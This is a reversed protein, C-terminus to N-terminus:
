FFAGIAIMISITASFGTKIVTSLLRGVAAGRGIKMAETWTKKAFIVEALLAAGGAGIVGGVITGVVPIPLLISGVLAGVIAGVISWIAGHKSGGAKTSGAASAVFEAIEALVGLGLAVGLLEWSFMHPYWLMKVLLATGLTVWIGPLTLLTLAVGLMAILTVLTAAVYFM